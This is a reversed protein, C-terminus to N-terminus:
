RLVNVSDGNDLCAANAEDRDIHFEPVFDSSVRLLVNRFTLARVGLTEVDIISKDRLGKKEATLPDMHVHRMAVIAGEELRIRGAPGIIEIGPSGKLDGSQRLCVPLGLAFADSRSLEVQTQGRLPYLIRIGELSGKPGCITVKENAAFQGPQKLEKFMSLRAEERFLVALHEESLHVHRNSVGVPICFM